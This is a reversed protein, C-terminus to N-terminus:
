LLAKTSVLNVKSSNFSVLSLIDISGLSGSYASGSPQAVNPSFLISSSASASIILTSTRGAGINTVNLHLPTVSSTVEFYNGLSFDISATNSTISASVVNGIASGTVELSGSISATGTYPFAAGASGTDVTLSFTSADGKTFTLVNGVVSGTVMLSGTDTSDGTPTSGSVIYLTNPNTLSGSALAAYSASTLTVIQQVEPIDTYIDTLNTILSGSFSSSLISPASGTLSLNGNLSTAGSVNLTGEVFTNSGSDILFGTKRNTYGTGTGVAFVTEASKSKNGDTANFRGAFVSGYTADAVTVPIATPTTSSASVILGNGMMSVAVMSTNDGTDQLSASINAGAMLNAFWTRTGTTSTNTGGFTVGHGIGYVTNVNAYVQKAATTAGSASVFNNNITIGGNMINSNYTVSSSNHNMTVFAGFILNSNMTPLTDIQTKGATVSVTGGFFGNNSFTYGSLMKEFSSTGTGTGLNLTGMAVNDNLTYTSSSVPGRLTMVFNGINRNMSPSFEMSSSIQPIAAANYYNNNGGVYRKFGATPALANTFINNSGSIITDATNNNNKFILNVQTNTSASIHASASTFGKAVLMLSGSIDSLTVTNGAADTLTQDGTFVNSGTTAFSGTNITGGGGFSSTAVTVTRGTSDGVWVYGQQLSATLTNEIIVSASNLQIENAEFILTHKSVGDYDFEFFNIDHTDDKIVFSSTSIGIDFGDSGGGGATDRIRLKPNGSSQIYVDNRFTADNSVDLTGNLDTIGNIQLRSATLPGAVVESGSVFLSGSITQDGVFTNSGTTAFSGTNITSAFSSTAVNTTIGSANGVLVYGEQLSSTFTGSVLLSLNQLDLKKNTGLSVIELSGSPNRIGVLTSVGGNGDFVIPSDAPFTIQSNFTNNGTFTNSGTTAFSGTDIPTSSVSVNFTTADGKTFTITNGVASATILSSATIASTVYSSTAAELSSVRQDNSQTYSNFSATTVFDGASGSVDPINVNFTTADGKTFTLNRTGNDFSATILSSATVSSSVFGLATIQASGSITGPTVSGSSAVALDFTTNDGKTFTIVNVNVSATILFSGSETETVYSSTASNLSNLSVLASASFTNLNNISSVISATSQSATFQNLSDISVQQSASSANLQSVSSNLSATTSEINTLRTNTSQTYANFSSTTLLSGTIALIRSNFSASDATYDDQNVTNEITADNYDRLVQPTILGSNNNPFSSDNLAELQAKTLGM